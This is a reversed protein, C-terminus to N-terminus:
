EFPRGGAVNEGEASGAKGLAQDGVIEDILIAQHDGRIQETVPHGQEGAAEPALVQLQDVAAREVGAGEDDVVLAAPVSGGMDVNCGSPVRAGLQPAIPPIASCDAPLPAAGLRLTAVASLRLSGQRPARTRVGTPVTRSRRYRGACGARRRSSRGPNGS